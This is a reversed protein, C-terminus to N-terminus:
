SRAEKREIRVVKPNTGGLRLEAKGFLRDVVYVNGQKRWNV